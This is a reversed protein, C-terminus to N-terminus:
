VLIWNFVSSFFLSLFLVFVLKQRFFWMMRVSCYYLFTLGIWFLKKPPLSLSLPLSFFVFFFSFSLLFPENRLKTDEKVVPLRLWWKSGWKAVRHSCTIQTNWYRQGYTRNDVPSRAIHYKYDGLWGRLDCWPSVCNVLDGTFVSESKRCVNSPTKFPVKLFSHFKLRLILLPVSNVRAIFIDCSSLLLSGFRRRYSEESMRTFVLYMFNLVKNGLTQSKRCYGTRVVQRQLPVCVYMYLHNIISDARVHYEINCFM